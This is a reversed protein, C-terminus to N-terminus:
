LDLEISKFRLETRGLRITDNDILDMRSVAKGNVYSGNTSDLDVLIYEGNEHRIVSHHSSLYPDTLVVDCDAATGMTNKGDVLRFDRGRLEGNLVVVWGVCPQFTGANIQNIDIAVTHVQEDFAGGQQQVPVMEDAKKKGFWGMGGGGSESQQQGGRAQAQRGGGGGGGGGRQKKQQGGGGGGGKLKRKAAKAPADVANNFKTSAKSKARAVASMQKARATNVVGDIRQQGLNKFFEFIM